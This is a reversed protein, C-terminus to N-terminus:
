FGLDLDDSQKEVVTEDKGFLLNRFYTKAMVFKILRKFANYLNGQKTHFLGVLVTAELDKDSLRDLDANLILTGKPSIFIEFSCGKPVAFMYPITLGYKNMISEIKPKLTDNAIEKYKIEGNANFGLGVGGYAGGYLKTVKECPLGVRKLLEFLTKNVKVSKGSLSINSDPHLFLYGGFIEKAKKKDPVLYDWDLDVEFLNQKNDSTEKRIADILLSIVAKSSGVLAQGIEMRHYGMYQRLENIEAHKLDYVFLSKYVESNEILIGNKYIKLHTGTNPYIAVKDDEYLATSNLFYDDWKDTVEKIEKTLGIYITTLGAVGIDNKAEMVNKVDAEGEDKANCWIERIAEWAKWQHGYHTTINMSTGNVYIENFTNEGIQNQEVNFFVEKEGSFLRFPVENRLLYSVAYKLGTGFKGVKTDDDFKTTAGMLLILRVDLEGKNTIKLYKM